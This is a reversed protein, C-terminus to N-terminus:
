VLRAIDSLLLNVHQADDCNDLEDLEFSGDAQRVGRRRLMAVAKLRVEDNSQAPVAMLRDYSAILNTMRAEAVFDNPSPLAFDAVAESHLASAATVTMRHDIQMNM